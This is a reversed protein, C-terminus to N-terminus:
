AIGLTHNVFGVIYKWVLYYAAFAALLGCAVLAYPIHWTQFWVVEASALQFVGVHSGLLAGAPALLIPLLAGHVGLPLHTRDHSSLWLMNWLAWLCPVLAMPFILGREIPVPVQLALRVIIFGVLICPLVLSPVFVGALFARLYPHTNM